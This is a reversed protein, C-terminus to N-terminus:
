RKKGKFSAATSEKHWISHGSERGTTPSSPEDGCNDQQKERLEVTDPPQYGVLTLIYTLSMIAIQLVTHVWTPVVLQRALAFLIMGLALVLLVRTWSPQVNKNKM